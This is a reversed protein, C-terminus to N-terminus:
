DSTLLGSLVSTIFSLVISFLMAWWFGEVEMGKVFYAAVMVVVANIVLSFLGLTMVTLPLGIFSLLPKLIANLIGLVVAFVLASTFDDIHVGINLYKALCFASIATILLRIILNM